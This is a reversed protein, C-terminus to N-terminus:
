HIVSISFNLSKADSYLILKYLGSPLVSVDIQSSVANLKQTVIVKGQADVLAATINSMDGEKIIILKSSAPNPYVSFKINDLYAISATSPVRIEDSATCGNADTVTVSYTGTDSVSISETSEGTSWDYESFGAGPTLTLSGSAPIITDNGM